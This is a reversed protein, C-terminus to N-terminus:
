YIEEQEEEEKKEREEPSGLCLNKCRRRLVVLPGFVKKQDGLMEEEGPGSNCRARVFEPVIWEESL